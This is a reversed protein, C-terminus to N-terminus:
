GSFMILTLKVIQPHPIDVKHNLSPLQLTVWSHQEQLQMLYKELDEKMMEERRLMEKELSLQEKAKRARYAKIPNVSQFWTNRPQLLLDDEKSEAMQPKM